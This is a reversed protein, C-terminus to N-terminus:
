KKLEQPQEQAAVMVNWNILAQLATRPTTYSEVTSHITALEHSLALYCDEYQHLYIVRARLAELEELLAGKEIAWNLWADLDYDGNMGNRLAVVEAGQRENAIRRDDLHQEQLAILERLEAIEQQQSQILAIAKTAFGAARGIPKEYEFFELRKCSPSDQIRVLGEVVEKADNNM